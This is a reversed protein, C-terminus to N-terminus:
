KSLSKLLELQQDSTIISKNSGKALADMTANKEDNTKTDPGSSVRLNELTQEPTPTPPHKKFIYLGIGVIVIVAAVIIAGIIWERKHNYHAAAPVASAQVPMTDMLPAIDHQTNQNDM